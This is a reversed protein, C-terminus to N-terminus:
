AGVAATAAETMDGVTIVGAIAVATIVGAM